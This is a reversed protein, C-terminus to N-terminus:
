HYKVDISSQKVVWDGIVKLAAPAITEEIQSYEAVSGTKCTQFLHNLGPLQQTTVRTNGGKKIAKAIEELNEKPPVQLDKEGNLALVPCQVKALTPRPDFSLFFRFWPSELMKM